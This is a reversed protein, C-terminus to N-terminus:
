QGFDKGWKEGSRSGLVWLRRNGDYAVAPRAEFNRTAAVPFPEGAASGHFTRAYVDYDGKAYTDWAITVEAPKSATAAIAPCWANGPGELSWWPSPFATQRRGPLLFRGRAM